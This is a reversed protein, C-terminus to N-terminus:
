SLSLTMLRVKKGGPSSADPPPTSTINLPSSGCSSPSSGRIRDSFLIVSGKRKETSHTHKTLPYLHSLPHLDLNPNPLSKRYPGSLLSELGYLTQWLLDVRGRCSSLLWLWSDTHSHELLVKNVFLPSLSSKNQLCRICDRSDLM